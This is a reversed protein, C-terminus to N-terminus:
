WIGGGGRTEPNKRLAGCCMPVGNPKIPHMRLGNCYCCNNDAFFLGNPNNKIHCLWGPMITVILGFARQATTNYIYKNNLNTFGKIYVSKLQKLIITNYIYKNNLNTFGKIDVSKLQKFITTFETQTYM